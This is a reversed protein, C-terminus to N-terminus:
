KGLIGGTRVWDAARRMIEESDKFLGLTRNCRHCLMGRVRGTNHDHDLARGRYPLISTACIGCRGEQMGVLVADAHTPIVGRKLRKRAISKERYPGSPYRTPGHWPHLLRHRLQIERVKEPNMAAWKRQYERNYKRAGELHRARWERNYKRVKDVNRARWARQYALKSNSL